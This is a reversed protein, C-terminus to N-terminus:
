PQGAAASRPLFARQNDLRGQLLDVKDLNSLALMLAGGPISILAINARTPTTPLDSIEQLYWQAARATRQTKGNGLDLTVFRSQGTQAIGFMKQCELSTEVYCGIKVTGTLVGMRILSRPLTAYFTSVLMVCLFALELYRKQRIQTFLTLSIVCALLAQVMASSFIKYIPLTEYWWSANSVDKDSLPVEVAYWVLAATGALAYTAMLILVLPYVTKLPSAKDQTSSAHATKTATNTTM